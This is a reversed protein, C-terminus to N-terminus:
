YKIIQVNVQSLSQIIWDPANTKFRDTMFKTIFEPFKDQLISQRIRDTLNRMYFMNHVSMLMCFNPTNKISNLYSRSYKKCTTCDCFEDIPQLDLSVKSDLLLDGIDRFARGFRATRTPYVCDSMDTGLACCVVVDEPYGVGMLYRPIEPPLYKCCFLVTSCFDNKDEGGSLGGIALGIPKRLLIEDISRKRLDNLLGGQIIPFLVQGNAPKIQPILKAKKKNHSNVEFTDNASNSENKEECENVNSLDSGDNSGENVDNDKESNKLNIHTIARDLWDISRVIAKEHLVRNEKPNVVDDLQMMIDAGLSLQIDMSKEPTFIINDFLVGEDLVQVNPLSQIQFGGSDTLMSKKWGMFDKINKGLKRLHYTNSLIIEEDMSNAKIGRMAGYTGVPMFIPLHLTNNKLTFESVRGNTTSCKKIIKFDGFM